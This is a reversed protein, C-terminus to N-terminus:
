KKKINKESLRKLSTIQITKFRSTKHDFWPKNIFYDQETLIEMKEDKYGKFTYWSGNVMARVCYKHDFGKSFGKILTNFENVTLGRKNNKEIHIRTEVINSMIKKSIQEIKYKPKKIESM